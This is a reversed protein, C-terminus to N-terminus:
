ESGKFKGLWNSVTVSPSFLDGLVKDQDAKWTFAFSTFSIALYASFLLLTLGFVRQFQENRLFSFFNNIRNLFSVKDASENGVNEKGADARASKSKSEKATVKSDSTDDKLTNKITNKKPEAM